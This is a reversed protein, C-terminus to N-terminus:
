RGTARTRANADGTATRAAARVKASRSRPNRGVEDAGAAVPKRTLVHARGDAEARRFTQKVARDEGSHFSIAVARGGDRLRDIAADLGREIREIERNVAIRLAQFTRTAPHIGARSADRPRASLIAAVLDSTRRLPSRKRRVVIEHAIRRARREDGYGHIVDALERESLRALLDAATPDDSTPDLRMDLPQDGAFSFGRDADALQLSSLGLDFLAGDISRAGFDDLLAGLDGFNGHLPIVRGHSAAAMARAREVAKPDADLAIVRCGPARALIARTHGGAGFTADVITAGETVCGEPLLLALSEDVM